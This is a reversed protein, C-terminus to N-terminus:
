GECLVIYGPVDQGRDQRLVSEACATIRLGAAATIKELYARSHSFRHGEGLQYGSLHYDSSPLLRQASFILVGGPAMNRAAAAILGDLAGFYAFVDASVILDFPSQTGDERGGDERAWDALDAQRLRQYLNKKRAEALMGASLDVGEIWQAQGAFFEAALGTGCGLDLIRAPRFDPKRARLLEAIQRPVSYALKEVLHTDFRQAYQDFLAEVYAPPLGDASAAGLLQMKVLAGQRDQPDLALTRKYFELAAGRDGNRAHLGALAFPIAPWEPAIEAAQRLLDIAAETEGRAALEQAYEYRRDAPRHGSTKTFDGNM